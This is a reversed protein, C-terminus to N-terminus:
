SPLVGGHDRIIELARHQDGPSHARVVLLIAGDQFCEQCYAAERASIGLSSFFDGFDPPSGSLVGVAYVDRDRFGRRLLANVASNASLGEWFIASVIGKASIPQDQLVAV